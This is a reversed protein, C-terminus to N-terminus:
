PSGLSTGPTRAPEPRPAFPDRRQLFRDIDAVALERHARTDVDAAPVAVSARRRVERLGWEAVSRSEATAKPDAALRLLEDVTVRQVVRRLTASEGAPGDTWTRAVVQGVIGGLSPLKPDRDHFAVVRATREPALVNRLLSTAFSRAAGLHDFVPATANAFDLRSEDDYGFPRPPIMALVREPITLNAPQIADLVLTLARQQRAAPVIRTPPLPDGRLAYRWELGGIAKVAGAAPIGHHMYVQALRRQLLWMPEGPHIAREDFRDLLFRRVQATRALEEVVDPGAVWTTVDPHAGSLTEDSNTMFLLGKQMGENTIEALGKAEADPTAWESYGWRIALTDYAGLGERYAETLDLKGNSVRVLPPPYDMASARGNVHAIFNHALGLTHGVEHAAHQRRRSMVFQEATVGGSSDGPAADALAAMWEDDPIVPEARESGAPITGAFLNYNAVSRHSDMRVAAKIIEGTRPDTFVMGWSSSPQSRHVWQIVNYRADLPDMDLPMDEIRFANRFGAAEFAKAWWGAGQKFNTRYPEPVAPDLYYVIPEVPDSVAANPDRKRLRHRIAFRTVYDEDFGKAFDMFNVAFFGMRPDFKRPRFGATDPLQVFSHHIRFTVARGDPSHRRVVRGMNDSTFTVAGELETNKPFARTREMWVTSRAPDVSYTGEGDDRLEGRLDIADSTVLPTADAVLRGGEEGVIELSALVSTPFSERVSRALATSGQTSKFRHNQQVLLLRNGSREWRAIAEDGVRGRDIDPGAAGLGTALSRLYLFDEGTRSVEVLLRGKSASWYVPMFGDRREMGQTASSISAQAHLAVPALLAAAVLLARM